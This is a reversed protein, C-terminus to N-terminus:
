TGNAMSHTDNAGSVSAPCSLSSPPGLWMSIMESQLPRQSNTLVTKIYTKHKTEISAINIADIDSWPCCYCDYQQKDNQLVGYFNRDPRSKVRYCGSAERLPKLCYYPCPM